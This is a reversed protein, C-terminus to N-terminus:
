QPVHLVSMLYNVQGVKSLETDSIVNLVGEEGSSLEGTGGGWASETIWGDRARRCIRGPFRGELLRDVSAQIDSTFRLAGDVLADIFEVGDEITCDLSDGFDVTSDSGASLCSM